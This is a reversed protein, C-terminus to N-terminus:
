VFRELETDFLFFGDTSSLGRSWSPADVVMVGSCGVLALRRLFAWPRVGGSEDVVDVASLTESVGLPFGADLFVAFFPGLGLTVAGGFRVGDAGHGSGNLFSDCVCRARFITYVNQQVRFCKAM